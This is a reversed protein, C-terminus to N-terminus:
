YKDTISKSSNGLVGAVLILGLIIFFQM